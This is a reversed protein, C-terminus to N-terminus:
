SGIKKSMYLMIEGYSNTYDSGCLVSPEIHEIDYFNGLKSTWRGNALQRAAHSPKGTKPNGYLAIKTYGKELEGDDCVQYGLTAFAKRFAETTEERPVGPPWHADNSPAPLPWWPKDTCGAAWAICNYVTSKASTISCNERKIHPFLHRQGSQQLEYTFKDYSIDM